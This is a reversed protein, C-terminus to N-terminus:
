CRLWHCRCGGVHMLIALQIHLRVALHVQRPGFARVTASLKRYKVNDVLTVSFTFFPLDRGHRHHPSRCGSSRGASRTLLLRLEAECPLAHASRFVNCEAATLHASTRTPNSEAVMHNPTLAIPHTHPRKTGRGIGEDYGMLCWWWELM